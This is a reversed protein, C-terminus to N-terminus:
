FLKLIIMYIKRYDYISTKSRRKKRESNVVDHTTKLNFLTLEFNEKFKLKLEFSIYL